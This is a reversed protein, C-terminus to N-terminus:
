SYIEGKNLDHQLISSTQQLLNLTDAEESNIDGVIETAITNDGIESILNSDFSNRSSLGPFESFQEVEAETESQVSESEVIPKFYNEFPDAPLVSESPAFVSSQNVPSILNSNFSNVSSIGPFESLQEVPESEIPKFFNNFPEPQRETPSFFNLPVESNIPSVLNTNFSTTSSLGPFESFQEVEPIFTQPTSTTFEPESKVPNFFSQVEPIPNPKEETEPCPNFFNVPNNQVPTSLLESFPQASTEIHPNKNFLTKKGRISYPNQRDGSIPLSSPPLGVPISPPGPITSQSDFPTLTAPTPVETTQTPTFFSQQNGYSAAQTEFPTPAFGTIPQQFQQFPPVSPAEFPTPQQQFPPVFAPVSQVEFPTTQRPPTPAPQQQFQPVFASQVEFPTTQRPPTPPPVTQIGGFFGQINSSGEFYGPAQQPPPPYNAVSNDLTDTSQSTSEGYVTQQLKDIIGTPFFTSLSFKGSEQPPPPPQQQQQQYSDYNYESTPIPPQSEIKDPILPAGGTFLGPIKAYTKKVNTLRYSNNGIPIEPRKPTLSDTASYFTPPPQIIKPEEAPPATPAYINYDIPNNSPITFGDTLENSERIPNNPEYRPSGKIINSFTSFVTSAVNPLQALSNTLAAPANYFLDNVDSTTKEEVIKQPQGLFTDETASDLSVESFSELNLTAPEKSDSLTPFM